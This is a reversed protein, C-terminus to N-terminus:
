APTSSGPSSEAPTSSGPSTNVEETARGYHNDEPQAYYDYNPQEAYDAPAPAYDGPNAVEQYSAAALAALAFTAIQIKTNM